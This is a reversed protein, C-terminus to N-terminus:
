QPVFLIVGVIRVRLESGGAGAGGPGITKVGAPDDVALLDSVRLEEGATHGRAAFAILDDLRAVRDGARERAASRAMVQLRRMLARSPLSKPSPSWRGDRASRLVARAFTAIRDKWELGLGQADGRPTGAHAAEFARIVEPASRGIGGNEGIVAVSSAIEVDNRDIISVGVLCEHRPGAVVCVGPTPAADRFANGTEQRWRWPSGTGALGAQEPLAHKRRLTREQRTREELWEPLKFTIVEVEAHRAGLRRSRGERQALRMATWPLDYHVIRGARQLDLGEAAVDSAILIHPAVDPATPGFWKLVHDRSMAAHRWGARSGTVWAPAFHALRDRLYPVTAVATTFVITPHGDRLIEELRDAKPDAADGLLLELLPAIKELDHHPLDDSCLTAPLLEWMLLQEPAEATFRRLAHRDVQHGAAVAERAHLLLDRYRALASRLAAPSSGAASLLVGRILSAVEGRGALTLRDLAALWSPANAGGESGPAVESERRAPVGEPPASTIVVRGLANPVRDRRMERLLSSSGEAALADDRVGLRLQHAMDALRNVAPTATVLLLHRGVLFRGLHDYRQTQPSRFHHSEDVIVLRCGNSPLRGLSADTHSLIELPVGVALARERWQERLPAPVIAASHGSYPAENAVALAVFTKGSGIPDALMAGGFRQLSALLRQATVTQTPTPWEARLPEGSVPALLRGLAAVIGSPEGPGPWLHAAALLDDIVHLAEAVIRPV